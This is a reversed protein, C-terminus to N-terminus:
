SPSLADQAVVRAVIFDAVVDRRHLTLKLILAL